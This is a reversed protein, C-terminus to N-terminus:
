SAAGESAGVAVVNESFLENAKKGIVLPNRSYLIEGDDLAVLTDGLTDQRIFHNIFMEENINCILYMPTVFTFVEGINKKSSIIESEIELEAKVALSFVKNNVGKLQKDEHLTIFRFMEGSECEKKLWEENFFNYEPDSEIGTTNAIYRRGGSVYLYASVFGENGQIIRKLYETIEGDVVFYPEETGKKEYAKITAKFRRDNVAETFDMGANHLFNDIKQNVESIQKQSFDFSQKQLTDTYESFIVFELVAIPILICIVFLLIFKNRLKLDVFRFKM